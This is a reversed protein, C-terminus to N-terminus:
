KGPKAEQLRQLAYELAQRSYPLRDFAAEEQLLRQSLDQEAQKARSVWESKEGTREALALTHKMMNQAKQVLVSYRLRMAGEFLQRQSSDAITDPPVIRMLEEHLNAYLEGIRYGAMTSWHADYARMSDSYASQASLILECRQELVAGFNPPVPALAIRSARLRRVEGLAFYVVAVDRSIKGPADLGNDEIASRARAVYQEANPDDGRMVAEIALAGYVLVLDFPRLTSKKDLVREAEAKAIEWRELHAALRVARLAAAQRLPEDRAREAALLMRELAQEFRGLEDLALGGHYLASAAHPGNPAARVCLDFDQEARAYDGNQLRQMGRAHIRVINEADTQTVVLPDLEVSGPKAQTELPNVAAPTAARGCAVVGLGLIVALACAQTLTRAPITFASKMSGRM